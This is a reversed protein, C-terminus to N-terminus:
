DKLSDIIIEIPQSDSMISVVSRLTRFIRGEKGILKPLDHRTVYIKFVHKDLERFEEIKALQPKDILAHVMYEILKRAM